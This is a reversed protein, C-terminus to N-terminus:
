ERLLFSILNSQSVNFYSCELCYVLYIGIIILYLKTVWCLMLKTLIRIM